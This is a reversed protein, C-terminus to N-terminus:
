TMWFTGSALPVSDLSTFTNTDAVAAGGVAAQRAALNGLKQLEPEIKGVYGALITNAAGRAAIAHHQVSLYVLRSGAILVVCLVVATPLWGFDRRIKLLAAM